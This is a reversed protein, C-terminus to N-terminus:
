HHRQRRQLMIILPTVTLQFEFSTKELFCLGSILKANHGQINSKSVGNKGGKNL